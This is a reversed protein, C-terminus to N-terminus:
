ALEFQFPQERSVYKVQIIVPEPVNNHYRSPTVPESIIKQKESIKISM